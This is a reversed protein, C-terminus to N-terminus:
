LVLSMSNKGRVILQWDLKEKRKGKKQGKGWKKIEALIEGFAENPLDGAQKRTSHALKKKLELASIGLKHLGLKSHRCSNGQSEM